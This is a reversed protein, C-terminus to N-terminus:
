TLSRPQICCHLSSNIGAHINWAARVHKRLFVTKMALVDTGASPETMCMGGVWEGSIVKGLCRRRQEDNANHSFNNVFLMAHALYALCFGPDAASLEEHAIVAAVADMGAGGYETPVTIGLLGLNGLQRFLALNFREQRDYELAQPEVQKRVFERVTQRLLIHEESPNFLDFTPM